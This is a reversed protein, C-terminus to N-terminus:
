RADSPFVRGVTLSLISEWDTSADSEPQEAAWNILLGTMVSSYTLSFERFTFSEPLIGEKRAAEWTEMLIRTHIREPEYLLAQQGNLMGNTSYVFVARGVIRACALTCRALELLREGVRADPPLHYNKALYQDLRPLFLYALIEEKSKFHYYFAGKTLHISACIEDISVAEYGRLTFLTQAANLIQQQTKSAKVSRKEGAM